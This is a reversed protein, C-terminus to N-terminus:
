EKPAKTIRGTKEDRFLANRVKNDLEVIQDKQMRVRISLKSNELRSNRLDDKLKRIERDKDIVHQLLNRVSEQLEALKKNPFITDLISM